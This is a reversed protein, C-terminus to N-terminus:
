WSNKRRQTCLQILTATLCNKRIQGCDTEVQLDQGKGSQEKPHCKQQPYNSLLFALMQFPFIITIASLNKCRLKPSLTLSESCWFELHAKDKQPLLCEKELAIQESQFRDGSFSFHGKRGINETGPDTSPM